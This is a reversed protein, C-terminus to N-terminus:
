VDKMAILLAAWRSRAVTIVLGTKLLVRYGGHHLVSEVMALNIVHARHCRFFLAHPLEASLSHLNRSVLLRKGAECYVWTYSGDAQLAIIKEHDVYLVGEKTPVALKHGQRPH